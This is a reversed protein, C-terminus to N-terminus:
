KEGREVPYGAEDWGPLGERMVYVTRKYGGAVILKALAGAAGCSPGECYVVIEVPRDAYRAWPRAKKAADAGSAPISVAGAVRSCDYEDRERADIFVAAGADRKIKAEAASIEVIRRESLSAKSVLLYGDPHFLNIVLGAAGAVVLIIVTDKLLRM